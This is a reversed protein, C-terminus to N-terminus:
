RGRPRPPPDKEGLASNNRPRLTFIRNGSGGASDLRDIENLVEVAGTGRETLHYPKAGTHTILGSEELKRLHFAIKSTDDVQAAELAQSFTCPGTALRRLVLRRIPNALSGLTSHADESVISARVAIAGAASMRAPDYGVALPGKGELFTRLEQLLKAVEEERHRELLREVAALVVAAREKPSVFDQVADRIRHPNEPDLPVHSVKETPPPPPPPSILLVEYGGESALARAYEAPDRPPLPMDLLKREQDVLELIRFVQNPHVPKQLYDFAGSRIARVASDLSGASALMVVALRPWRRKAMALLDVGGKRNLRLDTFMVDFPEAGLAHIAESASDRVTVHHGKLGLMDALEARFAPEDVVVLVRLV